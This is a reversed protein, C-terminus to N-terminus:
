RDGGRSWCWAVREALERPLGADHELIAAREEFADREADDLMTLEASVNAVLVRQLENPDLSRLPARWAEGDIPAGERSGDPSMRRVRVRGDVVGVRYGVEAASALIHGIRSLSM